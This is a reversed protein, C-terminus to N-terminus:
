DEGAFATVSPKTNYACKSWELQGDDYEVKAWGYHIGDSLLFRFGVYFKEPLTSVEPLMADGQGDWHCGSYVQDGKELPEILDWMEANNVINPGGESWVYDVYEGNGSIRFELQGDKNFDIGYANVSQGDFTVFTGNGITGQAMDEEHTTAGSNADPENDNEDDGCAATAALLMVALMTRVLYKM